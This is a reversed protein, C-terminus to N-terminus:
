SFIASLFISSVLLLPSIIATSSLSMATTSCFDIPLVKSCSYEGPALDRAKTDNRHEVCKTEPTVRKADELQSGVITLIEAAHRYSLIKGNSPWYAYQKALLAPHPWAKAFKQSLFDLSVRDDYLWFDVHYEASGSVSATARALFDGGNDQYDGARNEWYNGDHENYLVPMGLNQMLSLVPDRDPNPIFAGAVGDEQERYPMYAAMTRVGAVHAKESAAQFSKAATCLARKDEKVMEPEIVGLALSLEEMREIMEVMDPGGKAEEDGSYASSLTIIPVNRATANGKVDDSLLSSYFAGFIMVDPWVNDNLYQLDIAGCYYNSSSCSPSLDGTILDLFAREADNPDAPFVDPDYPNGAHGLDAYALNGDAYVGGHNSGSSSREGYTAVIRNPKMGFHSFAVADMAGCVINANEPITHSTGADDIFTTAVVKHMILMSSLLLLKM